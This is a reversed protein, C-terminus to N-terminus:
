GEGKLRTIHPTLFPGSLPSSDSRVSAVYRIELTEALFVAKEALCLEGGQDRQLTDVTMHVEGVQGVLPLIRGRSQSLGEMQTRSEM